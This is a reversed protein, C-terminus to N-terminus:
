RGHVCEKMFAPAEALDQRSGELIQPHRQLCVPGMYAGLYRARSLRPTLRSGRYSSPDPRKTLTVRGEREREAKAKNQKKVTFITVIWVSHQLTSEPLSSPDQTM